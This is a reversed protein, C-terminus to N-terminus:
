VSEPLNSKKYIKNIFIPALIQTIVAMIIVAAYLDTSFLGLGYALTAVIIAIDGRAMVCASAFSAFNKETKCIMYGLYAGAYKTVLAVVVLIVALILSNIGMVDFHLRLGVYIFFFPLLFRTLTDFKEIIHSSSEFEAFYMGALFAGVIGSLGVLYSCATLGFCVVIAVIFMEKKIDNLTINFRGIIEEKKDMNKSSRYISFFVLVIFAVIVAINMWLSHEHVPSVIGTNVALLILCIIDVLISVGIILKGEKTESMEYFKLINVTITTSSAFLATGLMIAVNPDNGFLFYISFGGIFPLIISILAVIIATKGIGILEDLRTKLGIGFMLFVLGVQGMVNLFHNKDAEVEYINFDLLTGFEPVFISLNVFIIGAIIYGVMEPMNIKKLLKGLVEAMFLLLFIQLMLYGIEEM